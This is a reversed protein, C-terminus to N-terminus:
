RQLSDRALIRAAIHLFFAVKTVIQNFFFFSIIRATTACLTRKLNLSCTPNFFPNPRQRKRIFDFANGKDNGDGRQTHLSFATPSSRLRLFPYEGLLKAFANKNKNFYVRKLKTHTSRRADLPCCVGQEPTSDRGGGGGCDFSAVLKSLYKFLNDSNRKEPWSRSKPGRAKKILCRTQM